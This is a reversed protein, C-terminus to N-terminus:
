KSLYKNLARRLNLKSRIRKKTKKTKYRKLAKESFRYELGFEVTQMCPTCHGCPEENIPVHCFWTNNLIDMGGNDEAIQKMKLKTLNLLPFHYNGFIKNLDKSSNTKNIAFYEGKNNTTRKEFGGYTNIVDTIKGGKHIGLELNDIDKSFRALWEYQKGLKHGQSHNLTEFDKRIKYYSENIDDDIEIDSVSKTILPNITCKTTELKCIEKTISAIADLELKESKRDDKLYYPQITVEKDSLQFIRFSSDWGRTWLINIIKKEM